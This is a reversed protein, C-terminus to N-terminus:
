KYTTSRSPVVVSELPPLIRTHYRRLAGDIRDMLVSFQVPKTIFDICGAELAIRRSEDLAFATIAIVPIFRTAENAKILRTAESGTLRPLGMDMLILDPKETLAKAVGEEGDTAVVVDFGRGILTRSLITWHMENDEVLLIKVM